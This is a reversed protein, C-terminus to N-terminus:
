GGKRWYKDVKSTWYVTLVKRGEPIEVFPIRLLGGRVRSQAAWVGHEGPVVQEPQSVVREVEERTIGKKVEWQKQREEAHRTWIIRM